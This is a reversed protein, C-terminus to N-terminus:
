GGKQKKDQRYSIETDLVIFIALLIFIICSPVIMINLIPILASFLTLCGECTIVWFIVANRTTHNDNIIPTYKM